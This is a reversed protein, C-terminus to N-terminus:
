RESTSSCLTSFFGHNRKRLNATRELGCLNRNHQIGTEHDDMMMQEYVLGTRYNTFHFVGLSNWEPCPQTTAM